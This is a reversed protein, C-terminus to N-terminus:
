RFYIFGLNIDATPTGSGGKYWDITCGDSTLSAPLGLQYNYNGDDGFYFQNVDMLGGVKQSIGFYTSGDYCVLGFQATGNVRGLIIVLSPAFGAGTYAVGAATVADKVRTGTKVIVGKAWERATGAANMFQKLNAAGLSLGLATLTDAVSKSVLQKNADTFVPLSATLAQDLLNGTKM